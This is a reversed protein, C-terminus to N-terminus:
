PVRYYGWGSNGSQDRTFDTPPSCTCSNIIFHEFIEKCLLLALFMLILSLDTSIAVRGRNGNCNVAAAYFM